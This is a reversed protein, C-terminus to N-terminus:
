APEAPAGVRRLWAAPERIEDMSPLMEPSEWCRDVLRPGGVREIVAIFREGAAYQNLKAEIGLLRQVVRALPNGQQRRAQLVREFRAADPVLGSAARTMVVDGHGELLSMLGAIRTLVGRHEPTAILGAVGFEQLRQRTTARDRVIDALAAFLMKPDPNALALSRQVLGHFHDRMWPVGTFQARHTLEHLLVWMGFQQADFGFRQQVAALNPGVLYVADGAGHEGVADPEPEQGLLLDYQGLVRHSMWGLLTGVEAGTIRRAVAAGVAPMKAAARQTLPDLLRRFSALNAAIWQPRDIIVVRGPSGAPGAASRLGTVQEIRDELEDLSVADALWGAHYPSDTPPPPTARSWPLAGSSNAVHTAVRQAIGWDILAPGGPPEAGNPM